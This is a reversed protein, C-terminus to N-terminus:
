NIREEVSFIDKKRPFYIDIRQESSHFDFIRDVSNLKFIVYSKRLMRMSISFGTLILIVRLTDMLLKVSQNWLQTCILSESVVSVHLYVRM